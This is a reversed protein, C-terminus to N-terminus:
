NGQTAQRVLDSLTVLAPPCDVSKIGKVTPYIGLWALINLSFQISYSLELSDQPTMCLKALADLEENRTTNSIPKIVFVGVNM